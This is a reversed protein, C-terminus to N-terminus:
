FIDRNWVINKKVPMIKSSTDLYISNPITCDNKIISGASIISNEAISIGKFVSVNCGMWVHNCIQIASPYNIITNNIDKIPHYDTDLIQIDWSFMCDDGILIENESIIKLNGSCSFNEGILVKAKDGLLIKSGRGILAPGKFELKGGRAITTVTNKDTLQSALAGIKVVGPYYKHIIISGISAKISASNYIFIPFKLGRIIGFLKLNYYCTRM